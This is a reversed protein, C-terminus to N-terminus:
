RAHIRMHKSIVIFDTERELLLNQAVVSGTFGMDYKVGRKEKCEHVYVKITFLILATDSVFSIIEEPHQICVVFVLPERNGSQFCIDTNFYHIASLRIHQLLAMTTKIVNRIGKSEKGHSNNFDKFVPLKEM